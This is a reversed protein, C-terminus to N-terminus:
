VRTICKYWKTWFFHTGLIKGMFCIENYTLISINRRSMWTRFWTLSLPTLSFTTLPVAIPKRITRGSNPLSVWEAEPPASSGVKGSWPCILAWARELCGPLAGWLSLCLLLCWGSFGSLSPYSVPWSHAGLRGEAYFSAAANPTLIRGQYGCERKHSCSMFTSINRHLFNIDLIIHSWNLVVVKVIM